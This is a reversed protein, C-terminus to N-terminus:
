NAIQSWAPYEDLYGYQHLETLARRISSEEEGSESSLDLLDNIDITPHEKCFALLGKAAWSLRDDQFDGVMRRFMKQSIIKMEVLNQMAKTAQKLNMRGLRALDVLEPINSESSFCKLLIVMMQTYIDMGPYRFLDDTVTFHRTAERAQENDM